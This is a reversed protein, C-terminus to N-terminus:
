SCSVIGFHTEIRFITFKWTNKSRKSIKKKFIRFIIIHYIPALNQNSKYIKIIPNFSNKLIAHCSFLCCRTNWRFLDCLFVWTVIRLTEVTLFPLPLTLFCVSTPAIIVYFKFRKLRSSSCRCLCDTQSANLNSLSRFHYSKLTYGVNM